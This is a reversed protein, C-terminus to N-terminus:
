IRLRAQLEKMKDYANKQGSTSYDGASAYPATGVGTPQYYPNRRNSDIKDQISPEKPAPRDLGLAKINKYAAKKREFEDPIKMLGEALEGHLAVFKEANQNIVDLFDPNQKMWANKREEALANNVAHDIEQRTQQRNQEGFKNLKKELKRKDIYPENDDDEEEIVQKRSQLEQAIKEAELRASREQQLERQFKSELARFNREKDDIKNEQQNVQVQDTM